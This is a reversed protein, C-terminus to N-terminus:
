DCMRELIRATYDAREKIGLNPINQPIYGFNRYVNEALKDIKLAEQRSEKRSDDNRYNKLEALTFIGNYRGFPKKLIIEPTPVKGNLAYAHGDLLGRDCLLVPSDFSYELELITKAVRVQFGYLNRWPVIESDKRQEEEIIIRAAEPVITYGRQALNELLTTKGRGTGGIFALRIQTKMNKIRYKYM